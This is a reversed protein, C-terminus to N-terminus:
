GSKLDRLWEAAGGFLKSEGKWAKILRVLIRFEVDWAFALQILILTVYLVPAMILLIVGLSGFSNAVSNVVSHIVPALVADRISAIFQIGQIYVSEEQTPQPTEPAPYFLLQGCFM